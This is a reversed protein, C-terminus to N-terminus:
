SNAIFNKYQNAKWLFLKIIFDKIEQKVKENKINLYSYALCGVATANINNFGEEDPFDSSFNNIFDEENDDIYGKTVVDVYQEMFEIPALVNDNGIKNLFDIDYRLGCEDFSKSPRPFQNYYGQEYEVRTEEPMDKFEFIFKEPNDILENISDIASQKDKEDM